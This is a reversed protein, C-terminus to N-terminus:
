RAMGLSALAQLPAAPLPDVWPKRCLGRWPDMDLIPDRGPEIELSMDEDVTEQRPKMRM